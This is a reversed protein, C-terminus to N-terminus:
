PSSTSWVQAWNVSPTATRLETPARRSGALPATATTTTM